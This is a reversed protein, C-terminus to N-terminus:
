IFTHETAIIEKRKINSSILYLIELKRETLRDRFVTYPCM